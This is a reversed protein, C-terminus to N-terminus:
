YWVLENPQEKIRVHSVRMVSLYEEWLRGYIGFFGLM